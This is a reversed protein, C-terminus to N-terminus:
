NFNGNKDGSMIRAVKIIEDRVAKENKFDAFSPVVQLFSLTKQIKGIEVKSESLYIARLFAALTTIATIKMGGDHMEKMKKLLDNSNGKNKGEFIDKLASHDLIFAPIQKNIKNEQPNQNRDKVRRCYECEPKPSGKKVPTFTGCNCEWVDLKENSLKQNIRMKEKKNKGVLDKELM